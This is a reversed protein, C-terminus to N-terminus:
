SASSPDSPSPELELEDQPLPPQYGLTTPDIPQQSLLVRLSPQNRQVRFLDLSPESGPNPTWIDIVKTLFPTNVQHVGARKRKAIESISVLKTLATGVAELYVHGESELQNLVRTVAKSIKTSNIIRICNVAPLNTEYHTDTKTYNEALAAHHAM